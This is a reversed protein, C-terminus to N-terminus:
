PLRTRMAQPTVAVSFGGTANALDAGGLNPGLFLTGAAPMRIPTTVDGIAFPASNGVRAILAGMFEQPLPSRASSLQRRSGAPGAVHDGGLGIEGDVRFSVLQGQRVTLQTSTWQQKADVWGATQAFNGSTAPPSPTSGTTAVAGPVNSLDPLRGLYLRGVESVPFRVTGGERTRFVVDVRDGERDGTVDVLSGRHSTGNSLILLDGDSRAAVLETEPLGRAGGVFDILAVESIPLRRQDHLSVRLYLLNNQVDEFSGSIREGSRLLITADRQAAATGAMALVLAVATLCQKLM